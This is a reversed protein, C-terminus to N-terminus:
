KFGLQTRYGIPTKYNLAYSSRLYNHDYIIADIYDEVNLQFWYVNREKVTWEWVKVKYKWIIIKGYRNIKKSYKILPNGPKKKNELMEEVYTNYKIIWNRLM